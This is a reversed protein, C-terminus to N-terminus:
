KVFNKLQRSPSVAVHAAYKVWRRTRWTSPRTPSRMGAGAYSYTLSQVAGDPVAAARSPPSELGDSSLGSIQHGTDTHGVSSSM